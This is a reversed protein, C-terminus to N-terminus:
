MLPEMQLLQHFLVMGLLLGSMILYADIADNESVGLETAMAKIAAGLAQMKIEQAEAEAEAKILLADAEAQAKISLAEAAKEEAYLKAEAEQQAKYKAADANLKAVEEAAEADKIAKQKDNEAKLAAQQAAVKDEVIKEFEDTFDINTLVVDQVNVYYDAGIAERVVESVRKSYEQRQEIITMAEASSMVAKTKEICQTEIRDQLSSLTVYKGAIGETQDIQDNSPQRIILNDKQIQYQLYIELDMTQGDKSYASTNIKLQQVTTDYITYSTSFWSDWYLGPERIKEIMGYKKVVAVEGVDVQHINWPVIIFLICSLVMSIISFVKSTSNDDDVSVCWVLGIIFAIAFMIGLIIKIIM